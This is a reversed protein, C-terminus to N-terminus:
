RLITERLRTLCPKREAALGALRQSVTFGNRHPHQLLGFYGTRRPKRILIALIGGDMPLLVLRNPKGPAYSSYPTGWRWLENGMALSPQCQAALFMCDPYFGCGGFADPAHAM